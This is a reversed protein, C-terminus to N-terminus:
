QAEAPALGLKGLEEEIMELSIGGAFTPEGNLCIVPLPVNQTTLLRFVDPQQQLAGSYVDLYEVAVAGGYRGTLQERLATTEEEM